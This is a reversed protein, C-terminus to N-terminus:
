RRTKSSGIQNRRIPNHQIEWVMSKRYIINWKTQKQVSKPVLHKGSKTLIKSSNTPSLLVIKLEFPERFHSEPPSLKRGNPRIVMQETAKARHRPQGAPCNFIYIYIYIYIYVCIHARSLTADSVKHESKSGCTLCM